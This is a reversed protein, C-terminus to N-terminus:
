RGHNQGCNGSYEDVMKLANRNTHPLTWRCCIDRELAKSFRRPAKGMKSCGSETQSSHDCRLGVKSGPSLYLDAVLGAILGFLSTNSSEKGYRPHFRVKNLKLFAHYGPNSRACSM